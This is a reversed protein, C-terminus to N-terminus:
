GLESPVQLEIRKAVSSYGVSQNRIFLALLIDGKLGNIMRKFSCVGSYMVLDDYFIECGARYERGIEANRLRSGSELEVYFVHGDHPLFADESVRLEEIEM